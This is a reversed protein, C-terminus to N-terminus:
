RAARRREVLAQVIAWVVGAAAILRFGWVLQYYLAPIPGSNPENQASAITNGVLIAPFLGIGVLLAWLGRAGIRIAGFIVLIVGLPILFIGISPLAAVGTGLLTGTVFWYLARWGGV